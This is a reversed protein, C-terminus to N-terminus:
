DKAPIKKLMRIHEINADLFIEGYPIYGNNKYFEKANVQASLSLTQYGTNFAQKEAYDLLRSGINKGRYEKLIALRGIYMEKNKKELILRMTGVVQDNIIAIIHKVNENDVQDYKDYEEDLSVNQEKVFVKERVRYYENILTKSCEKIILNEKRKQKFYEKILRQAEDRQIGTEIEPYFNLNRNQRIYKTYGYKTDETAYVIKKIRAQQIAGLCMMCPELTVYLTCDELKWSNFHKNAQNIVEIEAHSLTSQKLERQNHAKAIVEGQYVLVAGVPVEDKKFAKRAEKIALAMFENDTAM